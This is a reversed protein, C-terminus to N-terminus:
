RRPSRRAAGLSDCIAQFDDLGGWAVTVHAHKEPVPATYTPAPTLNGGPLFHMYMSKEDDLVLAPGRWIGALHFTRPLKTHGGEALAISVKSGDTHLWAGSASGGVTFYYKEGGATCVQAKGSLNCCTSFGDTRFDINMYPAM